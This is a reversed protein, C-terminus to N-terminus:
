TQRNAWTVLRVLVDSMAKDLEAVVVAPASGSVPLSASFVEAAIVRGNRTGVLRATLEVRVMPPGALDLEFARIETVLRTEADIGEGPRVVANLQRANEFTTVIRSQVLRPLRDAWQAGSLYNIENARPKVLIRESDLARVASSEAIVVTKRGKVVAGAQRPVTLDYTELPAPAILSGLGGGSCGTLLPVIAMVVALSWRRKDGLRDPKM